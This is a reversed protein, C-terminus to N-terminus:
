CGSTHLCVCVWAPPHLAAGCCQTHHRVFLIYLSRGHDQIRSSTQCMYMHHLEAFVTAALVPVCLLEVPTVSGAAAAYYRLLVCHVRGAWVANVFGKINCWTAARLHVRPATVALYLSAHCCAAVCVKCRAREGARVCLSTGPLHTHICMCQQMALLATCCLMCWLM